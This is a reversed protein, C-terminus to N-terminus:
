WARGMHSEQDLIIGTEVAMDFWDNIGDKTVFGHLVGDKIVPARHIRNKRLINLAEQLTTEPTLFVIEDSSMIEEANVKEPDLGDNYARVLDWLSIVGKVEGYKVVPLGTFGHGIVVELADRIKEQPEVSCIKRDEDNLMVFLQVHEKSIDPM